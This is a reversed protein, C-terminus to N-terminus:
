SNSPIGAYLSRAQVLSVVPEGTVSHITMVWYSSYQHRFEAALSMDEPHKWSSQFLVFVPYFTRNTISRMNERKDELLAWQNEAVPVLSNDDIGECFYTEGIVWPAPLLHIVKGAIENARKRAQKEEKELGGYNEDVVAFKAIQANYEPKRLINNLLEDHREHQRMMHEHHQIASVHEVYSQIANRLEGHKGLSAYHAIVPLQQNMDHTHNDIETQTEAIRAKNKENEQYLHFPDRLPGGGEEEPFPLKYREDLPGYRASSSSSSFM